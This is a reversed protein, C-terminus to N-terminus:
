KLGLAAKFQARNRGVINIVAGPNSALYEDIMGPDSVNIIDIRQSKGGGGGFVNKLQDENLIVEGRKAIIPVEDGAVGGSVYSAGGVMGGDHMKQAAGAEGMWDGTSGGGFLGGIGGIIQRVVLQQIAIRILDNIVANAMNSFAEQVSTTGDIINMFGDTIHRDLSNALGEGLSAIREQQSGFQEVAIDWGAIFSEAPKSLNYELRRARESSLMELKQTAHQFSEVDRAATAETRTESMMERLSPTDGQTATATFGSGGIRTQRGSFLQKQLAEIEKLRGVLLRQHERAQDLMDLYVVSEASTMKGAAELVGTQTEIQEQIENFKIRSERGKTFSQELGALSQLETMYGDLARTSKLIEEESAVVKLGSLDGSTPSAAQKTKGLAADFVDQWTSGKVSAIGAAQSVNRLLSFGSQMLFKLVPSDIKISDFADGIMKVADAMDRFISTIQRIAPAGLLLIFKGAEERLDSFANAAKAVAGIDSDGVLIATGGSRRRLETLVQQLQETKSRTNDIQIGLRGFMGFEGQMAKGILLSVADASQGTAEAYDLTLTTLAKIEDRQAGYMILQRQVANINEDAFRTVEQLAAAQGILDMEYDASAQGTSILVGRLRLVEQQANIYERVLSGIGAAALAAAFASVAGKASTLTGVLGQFASSSKKSVSQAKKETKDLENRLQKQGEVAKESSVDVQLKAIDM